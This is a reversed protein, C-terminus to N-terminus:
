TSTSTSRARSASRTAAAAVEPTATLPTAEVAEEVAEPASLPQAEDVLLGMLSVGGLGDTLVHHARLYIAARGGELGEILTVDWPARDPDFPAPELLQVLDLLQRRTGPSAVAMTRLHHSANFEANPVWGPRTRTGNPDDLRWRLRPRM